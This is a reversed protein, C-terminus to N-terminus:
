EKKLTIVTIEPWAGIRMPFMVFGLGINVYLGRGDEIYMGRHEPYVFKSFSFGFLSIQMDHTHGALMLQIDTKPLVDRRWHTPDHSLLVKFMGETGRLAKPLDGRNPFPPNGSNEVGVLAISDNGRYLIRHENMLMHWGMRHERAILTDINAIREEDSNWHTYTAYDHNGLVSYVGDPAHLQAYVPMFPLMEDARSNVLDGTFVALDPHEANCIGIARQLAKGGDTWSGSHIDSIQVIRYGDFAEPLDPSPFTVRRVRFHEIGFFAGYLIYGCTALAALLSAYFRFLSYFRAVPQSVPQRSFLRVLMKCGYLFLDCVTFVMKPVSICLATILYASFVHRYPHRVVLFVVLALLLMISPMWWAIRKWKARCSTFRYRYIYWDPLLLLLIFFLAIRLIIM